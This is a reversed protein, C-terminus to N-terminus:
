HCVQAANIISCCVKSRVIHDLKEEGRWKWLGPAKQPYYFAWVTQGDTERERKKMFGFVAASRQEITGARARSRTKEQTRSCRAM